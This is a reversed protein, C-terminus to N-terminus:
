KSIMLFNPLMEKLYNLVDDFVREGHEGDRWAKTDNLRDLLLEGQKTDKENLKGSKVMSSVIEAAREAKHELVTNTELEKIDNEFRRYISNETNVDAQTRAEAAKEKNLAILSRNMRDVWGADINIKHANARHVLEEAMSTATDQVNKDGQSLKQYNDSIYNQLRWYEQKVKLDKTQSMIDIQIDAMTNGLEASDADAKWKRIQDNITRELLETDAGLKKAEAIDKVVSGISNLVSSIHVPSTHPLGVPSVSHSGGSGVSQMTPNATSNGGLSAGSGGSFLVNPNIGASQLRKVVAEPTNYANTLDFQKRWKDFSIDSQQKYFEEQWDRDLKNEESQWNMQERGFAVQRANGGGWMDNAAFPLSWTSGADDSGFISALGNSFSGLVGM